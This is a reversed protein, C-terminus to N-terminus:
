QSEVRIAIDKQKIKNSNFGDTRIILTALDSSDLSFIKSM